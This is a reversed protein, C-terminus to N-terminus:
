SSPVSDTATGAKARRPSPVAHSEASAAAHHRNISVEIAYKLDNPQFPKSVVEHIGRRNAATIDQTRPFNLLLVTPKGAFLSDLWVLRNGLEVSFSNGDVCLASVQSLADTDFSAREVWCAKWGHPELSDRLYEFQTQDAASIAVLIESGPEETTAANALADDADTATGPQHWLTIGSEALNKSFQEFRGDWQHWYIRRVGPWPVDSRMGGECWSGLLAVIPANPHNAQLREVVEAPIQDPRAQALVILDFSEESMSDLRAVQTLTIPTPFGALVDRFEDHWYDGSILVRSENM